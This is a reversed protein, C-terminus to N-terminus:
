PKTLILNLKLAHDPHDPGYILSRNPREGKNGAIIILEEIDLEGKKVQNVVGTVNMTYTYLQEGGPYTETVRTILDSRDARTLVENGEGDEEAYWATLTEVPPYLQEEFNKVSFELTANNIIQDQLSKVESIDVTINSGSQSQLYLCEADSSSLDTELTSGSYDHSFHSHRYKGLRILYTIRPTVTDTSTYYLRISSSSSGTAYALDLGFISNDSPTSRLEFGPVADYFLEEFVEQELTDGIAPSLDLWIQKDLKFRLQPAVLLLTDPNELVFPNILISDVSNIVQSTTFLPTSEAAFQQNSYFVADSEGDIRDELMYLELDHVATNNGYQGLTDLDLIMVVSDLSLTDYNFNPYRNVPDATFYASSSSKGFAPDDIEGVMYTRGSYTDSDLKRFTLTSDTLETQASLELQDDFSVDVSDAGLLDSGVIQSDNCSSAIIM